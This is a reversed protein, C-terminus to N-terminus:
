ATRQLLSRALDELIKGTVQGPHGLALADLAAQTYKDAYTQTQEKIGEADMCAIIAELEATPNDAEWLTSFDSSGHLALLIPLSKKRSILDDGRPKGTEEQIGWIGLQDDLIQFALGLNRGFSAFHSVRDAEAGALIAGIACACAILASTKGEIMVLYEDITVDNRSEFRMDMHQGQTLQLSTLDFLRNIEVVRSAPVGKDLLRYTSFRALAYLADGANIALPIGSRAWLTERGRRTQSHDEIDDHILSFNHLWEIASAAPLAIQWDGGIAACCLLLLLPRVRKGSPAQGAEEWGLHYAILEGLDDSPRDLIVEASTRMDRELQALMPPILDHEMMM